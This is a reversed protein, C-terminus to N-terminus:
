SPFDARQCEQVKEIGSIDFDMSKAVLSPEAVKVPQM